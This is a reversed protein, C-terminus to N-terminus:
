AGMQKAVLTVIGVVLAGAIASVVSTLLTKKASNWQEAPEDELAKLRASQEKQVGLMSEMNIALKNVSLTLSQLSSLISGLETLKDEVVGLRTKHNEIALLIETEKEM